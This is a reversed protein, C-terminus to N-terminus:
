KQIKLLLNSAVQELIGSKLFLLIQTVNGPTALALLAVTAVTTPGKFVKKAM